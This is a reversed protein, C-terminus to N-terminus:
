PDVLTGDSCLNEYFQRYILIEKHHKDTQKNPEELLWLCYEYCFRMKKDQDRILSTSFHSWESKPFEQNNLDIKLKHLHTYWQMADVLDKFLRFLVVVESSLYVGNKLNQRVNNRNIAYFPEEEWDMKTVKSITSWRKIIMSQLLKIHNLYNSIQENQSSEQRAIKLQHTLSFFAVAAAIAALIPSLMGNFYSSFSVWDKSAFSFSTKGIVGVGLIYSFIVFSVLLVIAIIILKINLKEM